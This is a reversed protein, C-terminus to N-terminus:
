SFFETEKAIAEQLQRLLNKIFPTKRSQSQCYKVIAANYKFHREKIDQMVNHDKM